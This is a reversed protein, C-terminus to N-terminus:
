YVYMSLDIVMGLALLPAARTTAAILESPTSSCGDEAAAKIAVQAILEKLKQPM